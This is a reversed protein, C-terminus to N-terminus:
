ESTEVIRPLDPDCDLATDYAETFGKLELRGKLPSFYKQHAEVVVIEGKRMEGVLTRYKNGTTITSLKLPKQKDVRVRSSDALRTTSMFVFLEGAPNGNKPPKPTIYIFPIDNNLYQSAFSCVVTDDFDDTNRSVVWHDDLLIIETLGFAMPACFWVLAAVALNRRM